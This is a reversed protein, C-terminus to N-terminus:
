ISAQEEVLGFQHRLRNMYAILHECTDIEKEYPNPRDVMNQKMETIYKQRREEKEIIYAKDKTMREYHYMENDELEFELKAKYYNEKEEKRQEQV